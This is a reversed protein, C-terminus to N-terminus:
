QCYITFKAFSSFAASFTQIHPSLALTPIWKGEPCIAAVDAMDFALNIITITM